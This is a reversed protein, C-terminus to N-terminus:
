PVEDLNNCIEIKALIDHPERDAEMNEPEMTAPTAANTEGSTKEDVSAKSRGFLRPRKREREGGPSEREIGRQSKVARLSGAIFATCPTFQVPFSGQRQAPEVSRVSAGSVTTATSVAFRITERFFNESGIRPVSTGLAISM